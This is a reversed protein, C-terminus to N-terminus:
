AYEVALLELGHAEDITESWGCDPCVYVHGLLDDAVITHSTSCGACTRKVVLEEIELRASALPTHETIVTFAQRLPGEAFTSDRRLRIRKVEPAGQKMMRVQIAEVLDLVVAYEHM